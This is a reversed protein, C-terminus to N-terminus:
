QRRMAGSALLSLLIFGEIVWILAVPVGIARQMSDAGVNLAALFIASLIAWAPNLGALLAVAIGTYGFGPSLGDPLGHHIGAVQGFGALGAVGGAFLFSLLVVREVRIGAVRAARPNQGVARIEYGLITNQFIFFTAAAAVLAIILNAHLRTGVILIPLHAAPSIPQTIPTVGSAWPGSILYTALFVALFNMMITVIVENAGLRVRLFGPILGWAAGAAFAGVVMVPLLIPGPLNLGNFGLGTTAIAGLYLQGEGGVNWMGCRFSFIATLATLLIPTAYLLTEAIGNMSGFAGKVMEAYVPLPNVGFLALGVGVTTFAAAIIALRGAPTPALRRWASVPLAPPSGVETTV